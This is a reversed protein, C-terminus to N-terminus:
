PAASTRRFAEILPKVAIKPDHRSLVRRRGEEGMRGLEEPTADLVAKMATVLDELSGAPVLWGCRGNEVLEPIGAIYTTVVPRQM